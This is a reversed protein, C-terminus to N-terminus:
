ATKTSIGEHVLEISEIAIDNGSAKLGPGECKVPFAQLVSWIMVPEGEDNLLTITIDRREVNPAGNNNFWNFLDNNKEVIGRKLSINTVKRLGPRKLSPTSGPMLGDRYEIAQIEQTLGSVDSFGIDQNNWSVKYHFVTLPYNAM